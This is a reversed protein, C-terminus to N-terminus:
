VELGIARMLELANSKRVVGPRIRYDFTIVGDELHDEFHMNTAAPALDEAISTLALDHTTILGIAGRKMLGRVVGAAGIGRDHSNTGNLLEDLLFLTPGEDCLEIVRRIRKIEAYFRSTGGQLSDTVRLSAGIRLESIALNAARAPAGAFALVANVGVARLLTSKGSMNSGSIVILRLDPSLSLDNRVCVPAPLLPHGIAAGEFCASGPQIDPFPDGPHEYAYGALSSLAELEGVASVWREIHPGSESRWREVAMAVQTTWLVVPGFARVFVNDRSDLLDLLRQLRAIRRSAPLGAIDLADRLAELRTSQFSEKEFRALVQSLLALDRGPEGASMLVTMAQRRVALALLGELAATILLALRIPVDRFDTAFFLVLFVAAILSLALALGRAAPPFSLRPASGWRAIADADVGTRFDEGLVALDERLDLRTRLEAVAQQRELVEPRRAPELLWCALTSEGARTRASSLLEFLSGSGFIDLDEAYPHAADRFRDGTEGRGAWRDDLRDLARQYFDIARQALRRRETVRAHYIILAVFAILPLLLTWASVADSSLVLWFLVAAAIFILLRFAGIRQHLKETKQYTERRAALRQEYEARPPGASPTM